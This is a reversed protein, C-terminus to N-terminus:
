SKVRYSNGEKFGDWYGRTYEADQYAFDQEYANDNLGERHGRDFGAQYKQRSKVRDDTCAGCDCQPDYQACKM